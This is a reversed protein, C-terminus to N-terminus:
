KAETPKLSDTYAKADVALQALDPATKHEYDKVAKGADVVVKNLAQFQPNDNLAKRKAQRKEVAADVTEFAELFRAELNSQHTSPLEAVPSDRLSTM